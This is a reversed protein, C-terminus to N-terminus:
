PRRADGPQPTIRYNGISTITGTEEQRYKPNKIRAKDGIAFARNPDKIIRTTKAEKRRAIESLRRTLTAQRQKLTAQELRVIQEIARTIEDVEQDDSNM